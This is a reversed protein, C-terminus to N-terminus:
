EADTGGEAERIIARISEQHKPELYAADLIHLCGRLEELMIPAAAVLRANAKISVLSGGRPIAIIEGNSMVVNLTHHVEWPEPTHKSMRKEGHSM